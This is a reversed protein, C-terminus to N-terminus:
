ECNKAEFALTGPHLRTSRGWRGGRHTQAWHSLDWARLHSGLPLWPWSPLLPNQLEPTSFGGPSRDCRVACVGKGGQSGKKQPPPFSVDYFFPPCTLERAHKKEWLRHAFLMFIENYIYIYIYMLINGCLFVHFFCVHRMGRNKKKHPPKTPFGPFVWTTAKGIVAGLPPKNRQLWSNALIAQDQSTRPSSRSCANRSAPHTSVSLHLHQLPRHFTDDYIM